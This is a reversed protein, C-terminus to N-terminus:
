QSTLSYEGSPLRKEGHQQMSVHANLHNLTGYSKECGAWGCRYLREIEDFRRRPRKKPVAGGIPVFTVNDDSRANQPPHVTRDRYPMASDEYSSRIHAAPRLGTAISGVSPLSEVVTRASPLSTPGGFSPLGDSTQPRASSVNYVGRYAQQSALHPTDFSTTHAFASATQTAQVPWSPPPMGSGQGESARRSPAIYRPDPAGAYQVNNTADFPNTLTRWRSTAALPRARSFFDVLPPPASRRSLM